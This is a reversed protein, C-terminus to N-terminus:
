WKTGAPGTTIRRFVVVLLGLGLLIWPAQQPPVYQQWDLTKLYGFVDGLLPTVGGFAATAYGFLETRRGKFRDSVLLYCIAAALIAFLIFGTM